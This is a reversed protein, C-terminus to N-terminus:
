NEKLYDGFKLTINDWFHKIEVTNAIVASGVLPHHTNSSCRLKQLVSKGIVYALLNETRAHATRREARGAGTQGGV